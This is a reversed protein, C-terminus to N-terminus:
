EEMLDLLLEEQEDQTSSDPMRQAYKLAEEPPAARGDRQVTATAPRLNDWHEVLQALTLDQDGHALCMQEFTVSRGDGIMPDLRTEWLSPDITEPFASEQPSAELTAEAAPLLGENVVSDITQSDTPLLGVASAVESIAHPRSQVSLSLVTRGVQISFASGADLARPETMKVTTGFKSSNDELLFQGDHFRITAHCRSISVDAIRVDSERSRGLKMVKGNALSIPNL